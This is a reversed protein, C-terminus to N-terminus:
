AFKSLLAVAVEDTSLTEVPKQNVRWRRPETRVSSSSAATNGNISGFATRCGAKGDAGDGATTPSAASNAVRKKKTNVAGYAFRGGRANGKGTPTLLDESNEKEAAEDDEEDDNASRIPKPETNPTTSVAALSQCHLSQLEKELAVMADSSLADARGPTVTSNAVHFGNGRGHHLPSGYAADTGYGLGYSSSAANAARNKQKQEARNVAALEGFYANIDQRMRIYKNLITVAM